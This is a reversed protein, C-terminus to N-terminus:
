DTHDTNIPLRSRVVTVLLLVDGREAAASRELAEFKWAIVGPVGSALAPGHNARQLYDRLHFGIASCRRLLAPEGERLHNDRKRDDRDDGGGANESDFGRARFEPKLVGGAKEGSVDLLCAGVRDPAM